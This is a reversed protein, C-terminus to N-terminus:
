AGFGSFLASRSDTYYRADIGCDLACNHACGSATGNNTRFVWSGPGVRQSDDVMTVSIIQCWCYGGDSGSPNGSVNVTGSTNSCLSNGSFAKVGNGTCGDVVWASKQGDAGYGYNGCSTPSSTTTPPPEVCVYGVVNAANAGTCSLAVVAGITLFARGTVM